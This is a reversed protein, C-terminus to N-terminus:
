FANKFEQASKKMIEAYIDDYLKNMIDVQQTHQSYDADDILDDLDYILNSLDEVSQAAGYKHAIVTLKKQIEKLAVPKKQNVVSLVKANNSSIAELYLEVPREQAALSSFSALVM